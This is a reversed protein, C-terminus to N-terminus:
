KLADRVKKMDQWVLKKASPNRLLYAPHFTPMVKIGNYDYFNGRMGSISTDVMLLTQAAPRGLCCIIKPKIIDIQEMLYNRCAVIESPLPTRNKPPRCKLCNAIYVDKRKLDIAEIIKTLLKGARGIFPRGHIDEDLGPAEGIFMLGAHASGEGYVSNRRTGYLECERCNEVIKKNKELSSSRDERSRDHAITSQTDTKAQFVLGKLATEQMGSAAELKMYNKLDKVIQALDKRVGVGIQVKGTKTSNTHPNM